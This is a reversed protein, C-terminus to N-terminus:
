YIHSFLYLYIPFPWYQKYLYHFVLFAKSSRYQFLSKLTRQVALLDFWDIRFSILGSYESSPSFSFSWYKPWTICSGIWQFLGQHQSLNPVPPSCPSLPHSLQIANGVWHVRTQAFEPLSQVVVTIHIQVYAEWLADKKTCITIIYQSPGRLNKSCM